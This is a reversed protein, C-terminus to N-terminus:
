DDNSRKLTVVNEVHPTHPFMDVPQVSVVSYRSCMVELDRAQTAPNCSVYVVTRPSAKMIADVVSPHMGARPPDTIVVDPTGHATIFSEDLIDKMDGAYFLTNGIGNIASNEKADEIAEPVYEIGVVKGAAAAVYNAITGTGTYLDYVTEGGRLGAAERVIDYLTRAQLSNTQFFSKPGIKFRLEGISEVIHDKGKWVDPHLDSYNDNSKNNVISVLSTVEPFERGIHGMMAELWAEHREGADSVVVIVMLEGSLTNRVVLNRLFGGGNRIDYFPMGQSLAFQRVSNRIRDGIADQLWCEEIDLVKDFCQPIHFGLAERSAFAEGSGVEDPTLWRRNSFTYELKNRYRATLASGAVPAIEPLTLKGIRVLADTVHGRKAELQKDYDLMQWKCGGCLGFHKCMPVSRDPSPIKLCEVSAEACNSRKRRVRLDAVDGPVAFPVFVVCGGVRALARGDSALGTIEINELLPFDKKKRSLAVFPKTLVKCFYNM